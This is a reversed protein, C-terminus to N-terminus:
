GYDLFHGKQTGRRLGEGRTRGGDGAGRNSRAGCARGKGGPNRLFDTIHNSGRCCTGRRGGSKRLLDDVHNDGMENVVGAAEQCAGEGRTRPVGRGDWMKM